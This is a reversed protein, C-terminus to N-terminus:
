YMTFTCHLMVPSLNKVIKLNPIRVVCIDIGKQILRSFIHDISLIEGIRRKTLLCITELSPFDGMQVSHVLWGVMFTLIPGTSEVIDLRKLHGWHGIREPFYDIGMIRLEQISPLCDKDLSPYLIEFSM